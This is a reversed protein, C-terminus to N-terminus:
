VWSNRTHPRSDIRHRGIAPLARCRLALPRSRDTGASGSRTRRWGTRASRGASRTAPRNCGRRGRRRAEREVVEALEDGVRGEDIRQDRRTIRAVLELTTQQTTAAGIPQSTARVSMGSRRVRARQQDGRREDRRRKEARDGPFQQRRRVAAQEVLGIAREGARRLVLVQEVDIRKRPRIKTM